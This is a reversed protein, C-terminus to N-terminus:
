KQRRYMEAFMEYENNTGAHLFFQWGERGRYLGLTLALASSIQDYPVTVVPGETASMGIWRSADMVAALIRRRADCRRRLEQPSFGGGLIHVMERLTTLAPTHPTEKSEAYTRRYRALNLYSYRDASEFFRWADDRVAVLSVGASAGLQKGSVWTFVNCDPPPMYYPAASICDAFFVGVCERDWKPDAHYTSAATEYRVMVSHELGSDIDDHADWCRNYADALAQLRELFAGRRPDFYMMGPLASAFVAENALTGSGTLWCLSWSADLGFLSSAYRTLDALLARAEPSRHHFRPPQNVAYIPRPDNPGFM